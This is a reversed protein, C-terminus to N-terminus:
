PWHDQFFLEMSFDQISGSSKIDEHNQIEELGFAHPKVQAVM